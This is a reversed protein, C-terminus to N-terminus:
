SKIHNFFCKKSAGYVFFPSFTHFYRFYSIYSNREQEKKSLHNPLASHVSHTPIQSPLWISAVAVTSAFFNTASLITWLSTVGFLEYACPVWNEVCIWILWQHDVHTRITTWYARSLKWNQKYKSYLLLAGCEVCQVM